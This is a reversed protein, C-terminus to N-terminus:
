WSFRKEQATKKANAASAASAMNSSAEGIKEKLLVTLAM